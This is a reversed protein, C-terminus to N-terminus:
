LWLPRLCVKEHNNSREGNMRYYISKEPMDKQHRNSRIFALGQNMGTRSSYVLYDMKIGYYKKNKSLIDKWFFKELIKGEM